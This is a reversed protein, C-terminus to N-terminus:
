RRPQGPRDGDASTTGGRPRRVGTRRRRRGRACGDRVLGITRFGPPLTAGPPFTALLGHDEGGDLVWRQASAGLAAAVPGLREVDDPFATAPAMLDLVVGSARAIRGADRLLGDSVDMMATAGAVAAAPGADLPSAPHLYAGVLEDDLAPRGADLLALGAASWGAVGAHAVVDGPRAGSRLVPARGELDGHATVAVVVAPGGSLDGGVVGM